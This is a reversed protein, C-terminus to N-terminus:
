GSLDIARWSEPTVKFLMRTESQLMAFFREVAEDNAPDGQRVYKEAIQRHIPWVDFEPSHYPEARGDIRVHQSLSSSPEVCLSMRPENLLHRCWVRTPAGTLWVHGQPPHETPHANEPVEGEWLFWLPTTYPRGDRRVTALVGSYPRELFERILEASMEFM